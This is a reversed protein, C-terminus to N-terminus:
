VRGGARAEHEAPVSLGGGLAALEVQGRAVAKVPMGLEGAGMCNLDIIDQLHADGFAGEAHQARTSLEYPSEVM